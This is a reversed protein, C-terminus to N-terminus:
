KTKEEQRDFKPKNKNNKDWLPSPQLPDLSTNEQFKYLGWKEPQIDGEIQRVSVLIREQIEQISVVGSSVPFWEGSDRHVLIISPVTEIGFVEAAKKDYDLYIVKLDWGYDRVFRNLINLQISCYPCKTSAFLILGYNDKKSRVYSMIESEMAETKKYIGPPIVPVDRATSLEPYKQWVYMSQMTFLLSKKRAIDLINYYYYVNEETPNSVALNEYHEYIKKFKEVPMRLLEEYTYEYLPKVPEEQKEEKREEQKSQEEIKAKPKEEKEPQEKVPDEYWWWGKKPTDKYYGKTSNTSDSNQVPTKVQNLPLTMEKADKGYSAEIGFVIFFVSYLLSQLLLLM